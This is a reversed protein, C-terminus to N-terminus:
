VPALSDFAVRHIGSRHFKRGYGSSWKRSRPRPSARLSPCAIVWGHRRKRKSPMLRRSPTVTLALAGTWLLKMMLHDGVSRFVMPLKSESMHCLHQRLRTGATRYRSGTPRVRSIRSPFLHVFGSEFRSIASCCCALPMLFFAPLIGRLPAPTPDSSCSMVTAKLPIHCAWRWM